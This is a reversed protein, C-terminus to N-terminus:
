QQSALIRKDEGMRTLIIGGKLSKSQTKISKLFNFLMTQVSLIPGDNLQNYIKNIGRGIKCKCLTYRKPSYYPHIKRSFHISITQAASINSVNSAAPGFKWSMWVTPLFGQIKSAASDLTDNWVLPLLAQIEQFLINLFWNRTIIFASM